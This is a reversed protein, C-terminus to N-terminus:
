VWAPTIKTDPLNYLWALVDDPVHKEKWPSGYKYGCVPCPKNLLRGPHEEPTIWGAMKNEGEPMELIKSMKWEAKHACGPRLRNLPWDNWARRLNRAKEKSWGKHFVSIEELEDDCQGCSRACNGSHRPRAAGCISLIGDSRFEISIFMERLRGRMEIRGPNVAKVFQEM